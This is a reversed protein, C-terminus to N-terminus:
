FKESYTSNQMKPNSVTFNASNDSSFVTGTYITIKTKELHVNDFHLYRVMKNSKDFAQADVQLDSVDDEGLFTYLQFYVPQKEIKSVDFTSLRSTGNYTVCKGTMPNFATGCNGTITIKESTIDTTPFDTPALRFASVGRTLTADYAQKSKSASVTIQKYTYVMDTPTDDPFTIESCSQITVRGKKLNPTGAAVAIMHYKGLPVELKVKGFDSMTSDQRVVYGSDEEEDIPILAVELESFSRTSKLSPPTDARTGVAGIDAMGKEFCTISVEQNTVQSSEATVNDTACSGLLALGSVLMLGMSLFDKM